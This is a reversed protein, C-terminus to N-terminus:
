LSKVLNYAARLNAFTGPSVCKQLIHLAAHKRWVPDRLALLVKRVSLTPPSKLKIPTNAWLDAPGSLVVPITQSHLRLRYPFVCALLTKCERLGRWRGDHNQEFFVGDDGICTQIRDAYFRMQADTMEVLSLTNIALDTGEPNQKIWEDFMYNPVYNFGCVTRGAGFNHASHPFVEQLYLSSFLLSEPLDVITYTVGAGLERVIAQALGGFGGGIDLIRCFRPRLSDLLGCEALLNLREQYAYADHNSLGSCGLMTGREGLVAPMGTRGRASVTIHRRVWGDHYDMRQMDYGTFPQTYRRLNSVMDTDGSVVRQVLRHICNDADEAWNSGPHTINRPLKHATCYADRNEIWGRVTRITQTQEPTM